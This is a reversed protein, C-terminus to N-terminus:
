RNPMAARSSPGTDDPSSNISSDTIIALILTSGALGSRGLPGSRVWGLSALEVERLSTGRVALMQPFQLRAPEDGISLVDTDANNARPPWRRGLERAGAVLVRHSLSPPREEPLGAAPNPKSGEGPECNPLVPVPLRSATIGRSRQQRRLKAWSRKDAKRPLWYM